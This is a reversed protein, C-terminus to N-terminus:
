YLNGNGKDDKDTVIVWNAALKVSICKKVETFFIGLYNRVATM